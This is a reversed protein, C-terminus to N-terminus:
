DFSGILGRDDWFRKTKQDASSEREYSPAMSFNVRETSPEDMSYEAMHDGEGDIASFVDNATLPAAHAVGMMLAFAVMTSIQRAEM